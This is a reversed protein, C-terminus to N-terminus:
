DNSILLMVLVLNRFVSVADRVFRNIAITTTIAIIPAPMSIKSVCAAPNKADLSVSFAVSVVLALSTVSLPADPPLAICNVAGAGAGGGGVPEAVQLETLWYPM